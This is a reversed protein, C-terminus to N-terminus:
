GVGIELLEPKRTGLRRGGDPTCVVSDGWYVRKQGDKSRVHPKIIFVSNEEVVWDRMLDSRASYVIIPSDDGLGRSHMLPVCDYRDDSEAIIREALEGFTIGPRLLDYCMALVEQQRAFMAKYEDPAKGVFGLHTQQAVYGGWRAECETLIMDGAQIPRRTPMYWNCPPQPWGISWLIMSPLEGGNETMEAMMRAYVVNEPVGPRAERVMVDIAREVLEVGARLFSIEEDSKIFRAEEMLPNANVIEVGPLGDVMQQYVGHSTVGEPFRTNGALGSLGVRKLGPMERLRSLIEGTFGWGSSINRVDSVWDQRALWVPPHVDPSSIATVEGEIPFISAVMCNNGGVGTLYRGNAQYADFFGTNPPVVICDIGDRAMLSRVKAWRRDREALSFKPVGLDSESM